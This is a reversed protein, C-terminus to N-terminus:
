CNGLISKVQALKILTDAQENRIPAEQNLTNMMVDLIAVFESSEIYDNFTEPAYTTLYSIFSKRLTDYDYSTFDATRYSKYIRQWDALGFLSSQRSSSLSSTQSGSLSSTLSGSSSSTAM